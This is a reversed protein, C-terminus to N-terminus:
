RFRRRWLRRGNGYVWQKSARRRLTINRKVVVNPVRLLEAHSCATARPQCDSQTAAARERADQRCEIGFKKGRFTVVTANSHVTCGYAAGGPRQATASVIKPM